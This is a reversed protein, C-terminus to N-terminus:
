HSAPGPRRRHDRKCGDGATHHHCHRHANAHRYGFPNNDANGLGARYRFANYHRYGDAYSFPTVSASRRAM